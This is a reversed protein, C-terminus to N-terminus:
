CTQRYAYGPLEAAWESPTLGRGVLQCAQAVLQQSDMTSQAAAAARRDGNLDWALVAGSDDVSFLVRGDPGFHVTNIPARDGLYTHDVALTHADYVVVSGDPGGTAFSGGDSSWAASRVEGAKVTNLRAGTAVSWATLDGDNAALLSQGNLALPPGVGALVRSHGSPITVVTTTDGATFAVASGDPAIASLPAAPLAYATSPTRASLSWAVPPAGPQGLLLTDGDALVGGLQQETKSPGFATGSVDGTAVSWVVVGGTSTGHTDGWGVLQRGDPTFALGAITGPYTLKNRTSLSPAHLLWVETTGAAAVLSGDPSVAVVRADAAALLDPSRALAARLAATTEPGSDVTSAAATIRLALRLDAGNQAQVAARAAAARQNASTAGEWAVFLMVGAALATALVLCLAIITYWLKAVQQRRRLEASMVQREAAALFEREGAALERGDAYDLAAALRAGGYLTEATRGGATWAQASASLHQHLDREASRQARWARLRPWKALLTEHILEAQGDVISVLGAERLLALVTAREGGSGAGAVHGHDALSVLIQEAIGRQSPTLSAYVREAAQEISRALGGNSRYASLRLQGDSRQAWLTTLGASLAPLGAEAADAVLADLLQPEVGVGALAAPEEIACRLEEATMPPMPYTNAAILRALEPYGVLAAFADSRLVLVVQVEGSAVAEVITSFLEARAAPVLTFAEEFQDVVLLTRPPRADETPAPEDDEPLEVVDETSDDDPTSDFDAVEALEALEAEPEAFELTEPDPPEALRLALEASGFPTVVLQRWRGSDPLVAGSVAPLVGARVLSSKGTGAAGVIALLPPEVMRAVVEAVARERGRFLEADDTEYRALGRYPCGSVPRALPRLPRVSRRVHDLELVGAVMEARVTALWRTPEAVSAAARDIRRGARHFAWESAARHLRAPVGGANVMASVAAADTTNPAYLRVIDAIAADSLATLVLKPLAALEGVRVPDRCTLLTLVPRDVHSRIFRVVEAVDETSALDLDDLIILNLRDHEAVLADRVADGQGYRIAVGREAVRQAVDGVLRTKGLGPSGVILRAQARRTAAMDLAAILWDIEQERGLLAPTTAALASPPPSVRLPVGYLAPDNSLVAREAHRLEPGPDITLDEILRAEAQRLAALADARRGLRFLATMLHVWLRERHWHEALLTQVDTLLQAPVDPAALALQAEVTSEIAALRLDELRQAEARTFPQDDFDSYAGGRWLRLGAELRAIALAPQGIALARRGDALLREFTEADVNSAGIHLIYGTPTTVVVGTPDVEPAAVTLAKRLRSVQSAVVNSADDPPQTGWLNAIISATSVEQGATRALLALLDRALGTVEVPHTDYCLEVPGLVNLRWAETRTLRPQISTEGTAPRTAIDQMSRVVEM